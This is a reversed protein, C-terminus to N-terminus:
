RNKKRRGEFDKFDLGTESIDVALAHGTSKIHNFLKNRTLFIEKCVNCKYEESIKKSKDKKKKKTKKPAASSSPESQTTTEVSIESNLNAVTQSEFEPAIGFSNLVNKKKKKKFSKVGINSTYTQSEQEGMSMQEELSLNELGTHEPDNQLINAEKEERLLQRRLTKINKQHKKSAEHNLFQAQNKFSKECAACYFEDLVVVEEEEEEIDDSIQDENKNMSDGLTRGELSAEIAEEDVRMWDQEHYDAMCRKLEAARQEQVRRRELIAKTENAAKIEDQMRKWRIDRRQIFKVLGRVDENYEKRGADRLKQNEKDVYRRTRRNTQMSTRYQDQWEFNLRTYFNTWFAYFTKVTEYDSDSTGFTTFPIPHLKEEPDVSAQM